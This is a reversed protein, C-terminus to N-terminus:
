NGNDEGEADELNLAWKNLEEPHFRVLGKIRKFPIESTKMLRNISSVSISLMEAAEEKSLLIKESLRLDGKREKFITM